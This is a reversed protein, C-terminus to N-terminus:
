HSHPTVRGDNADIVYEENFPCRPVSNIYRAGVLKQVTLPGDGVSEGGNAAEDDLPNGDTTAARAISGDISRENAQCTAIKSKHAVNNFIPIAIAVLIGIILVVVMLEVLTFGASSSLLSSRSEAFINHSSKM